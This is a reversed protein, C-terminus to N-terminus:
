SEAAYRIFKRSCERLIVIYATIQCCQGSNHQSLNSIHVSHRKIVTSQDAPPKERRRFNPNLLVRSPAAAQQQQQQQQDPSTM